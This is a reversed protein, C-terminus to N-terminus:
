SRSHACQARPSWGFFFWIVAIASAEALGVSTSNEGLVHVGFGLQHTRAKRLARRVMDNEAQVLGGMSILRPLAFWACSRLCYDWRAKLLDLELNLITARIQALMGRLVSLLRM